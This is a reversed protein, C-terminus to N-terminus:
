RFIMIKFRDGNDDFKKYNNSDAFSITIRNFNKLNEITIYNHM